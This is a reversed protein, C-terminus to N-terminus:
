ESLYEDAITLFLKDDDKSEDFCETMLQEIDKYGLMISLRRLMRYSIINVHEILQMQVMIDVDRIMPKEADNLECAHKMITKIPEEHVESPHEHLMAYIEDMRVIQKKVDHHLEELAQILITLDTCKIVQPLHRNLYQKGFYIKNLYYMFLKYQVDPDTQKNLNEM